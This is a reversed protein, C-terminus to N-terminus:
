RTAPRDPSLPWLRQLRARPVEVDGLAPHRLTLRRDDLGRLVGELVDPETGASPRLWVRVREGEGTQPPRPSRQPFVGRVEAWSFSRRGFAAQLDVGHRDARLVRGFLQDGSVLWLEDQGGDGDPRPLVAVDRTLTFEDFAVAGRPEGKGPAATCTLRVQRLPGGPGAHSFWLPADDVTVLLSRDSFAVVLRHWGPKRPVRVGEERPAPAAVEYAEGPGAVTARVLRPEGAGQFQAEVQWLAGAIGEPLHFNIGLGGSALPVPVTYAASQGPADLVLSHRGSTQQRDSVAPTGQIKWLRLGNEFDEDLILLQGPLQAVGELSSRPVSLSGAWATRLRLGEGDLALLEGTLRQGGPLLAQHVVGTRFPAVRSPTFRVSQVEAIPVGPQKGEATFHLRGDRLTLTGPLRLGDTLTAEDARLPPALLAAMAAALTLLRRM